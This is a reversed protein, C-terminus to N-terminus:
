SCIWQATTSRWVLFSKCAADHIWRTRKLVFLNYALAFINLGQSILFLQWANAKYGNYFQAISSICLSTISAVSTSCIIWSVTAIMGCIYSMSRNFRKPAMISTFHYQGGATPYVSALEALTVAASVYMATIVFNGYILSVPGGATLAASFATAVGAWSNPINFGLAIIQFPGIDRPVAQPNLQILEVAQGTSETTALELANEHEVKDPSKDEPQDM